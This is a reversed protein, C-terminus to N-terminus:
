LGAMSDQEEVTNGHTKSGPGEGSKCESEDKGDHGGGSERPCAGAPMWFWRFIRSERKRPTDIFLKKGDHGRFRADRVVSFSQIGTKVPIVFFQVM